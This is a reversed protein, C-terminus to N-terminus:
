KGFLRLYRVIFVINDKKQARLCLSSELKHLAAPIAISALLPESQMM